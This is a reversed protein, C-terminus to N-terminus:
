AGEPKDRRWILRVIGDDTAELLIAWIPQPWAPDDLRVRLYSQDTGQKIRRWAAGIETTGLSVRFDPAGETEKRDNALIKVRANVTLTRISGAYGDNVASFTGIVAM